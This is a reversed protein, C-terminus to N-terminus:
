SIASKLKLIFSLSNAEDNEDYKHRLLNNQTELLTIINESNTEQKIVTDLTELLNQKNSEYFKQKDDTKIFETILNVEHENLGETLSGLKKALEKANEEIRTKKTLHQKLKEKADFWASYNEATKGEFIVLSIVSELETLKIKKVDETLGKLKIKKALSIGGEIFEEVNSENLHNTKVFTEYLSLVGGMESKFKQTEKLMTEKEKLNSLLNIRAKMEKIINKM